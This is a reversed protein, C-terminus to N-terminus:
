KLINYLKLLKENKNFEDAAGHIRRNKKSCIMENFQKLTFFFPLGYM